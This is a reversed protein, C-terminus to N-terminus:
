WEGGSGVLAISVRGKRRSPPPQRSKLTSPLFDQWLRMRVPQYHRPPYVELCSSAVCCWQLRAHLILWAAALLHEDMKKKRKPNVRRRLAGRRPSPLHVIVRIRCTETREQAEASWSRIGGGPPPRCVITASDAWAFPMRYCSKPGRPGRHSWRRVDEDLVQDCPYGPFFPFILAEWSTPWDPRTAKYTDVRM